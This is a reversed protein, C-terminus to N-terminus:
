CFCGGVRENKVRRIWQTIVETKLSNQNRCGLLAQHLWGNRATEVGRITEITALTARALRALVHDYGYADATGQGIEDLGELATRLTALLRTVDRTAHAHRTEIEDLWNPGLTHNTVADPDIQGIRKHLATAVRDAAERWVVRAREVEDKRRAMETFLTELEVDRTTEDRTEGTVGDSEGAISKEGVANHVSVSNKLEPFEAGSILSERSRVYSAFDESSMGFGRALKDMTKMTPNQSRGKLISDITSQTLESLAALKNVSIGRQECLTRISHILVDIDLLNM